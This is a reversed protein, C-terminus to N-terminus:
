QHRCAVWFYLINRQTCYKSTGPLPAPASPQADRACQAPSPPAPLSVRALLTGDPSCLSPSFAEGPNRHARRNPQLRGPGPHRPGTCPLCLMVLVSKAGHCRCRRQAGRLYPARILATRMPSIPLPSRGRTALIPAGEELLGSNSGTATIRHRRATGPWPRRFSVPNAGLGHLIEAPQQLLLIDIATSQPRRRIVPLAYMVIAAQWAPL